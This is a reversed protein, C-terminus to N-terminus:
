KYIQKKFQNKLGKTIGWSPRGLEWSLTIQLSNHGAYHHGNRKVYLERDMFHYVYRLGLVIRNATKGVYFPNSKWKLGIPIGVTFDYEAEIPIDLMLGTELTFNKTNAQLLLPIHLEYNDNTNTWDFLTEIQIGFWSNFKETYYIGYLVSEKVENLPDTGFTFGLYGKTEQKNNVITSKEEEFIYEQAVLTSYVFFFVVLCLVYKITKKM